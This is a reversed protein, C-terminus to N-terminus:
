SWGPRRRARERAALAGAYHTAADLTGQACSARCGRAGITMPPCRVPWSHARALAWTIDWALWPATVATRRADADWRAWGAALGYRQVRGRQVRGRQERPTLARHLRVMLGSQTSHLYSSLM